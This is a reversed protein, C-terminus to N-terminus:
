RCDGLLEATKPKIFSGRYRCYMEGDFNHIAPNRIDFSRFVYSECVELLPNVYAEYECEHIFSHTTMESNIRIEQVIWLTSYNFNIRVISLLLVNTEM